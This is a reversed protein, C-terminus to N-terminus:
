YDAVDCSSSAGDQNGPTKMAITMRYNMWRALLSTITWTSSVSVQASSCPIPEVCIAVLACCRDLAQQLTTAAYASSCLHPSSVEGQHKKAFLDVTELGPPDGRGRTEVRELTDTGRVQSRRSATVVGVGSQSPRLLLCAAEAM